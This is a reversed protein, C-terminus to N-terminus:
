GRFPKPEEVPPPPVPCGDPGIPEGATSGPCKDDCNNVGDGDDDLDACTKAPPPPPPPAPTAEPGIPFLFEVGAYGDLFYDSGSQDEDDTDIRAGIGTRRYPYGFAWTAAVGVRVLVHTGPGAPRYGL